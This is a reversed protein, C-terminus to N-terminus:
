GNSFYVSIALMANLLISLTRSSDYNFFDTKIQTNFITLTKFTLFLNSNINAAGSSRFHLCIYKELQSSFIPFQM